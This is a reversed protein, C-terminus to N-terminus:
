LIYVYKAMTNFYSDGGVLAVLSLMNIIDTVVIFAPVALPRIIDIGAPRCNLNVPFGGLYRLLKLLGFLPTSPQLTPLSPQLKPTEKAEGDEVKGMMNLISTHKEILIHINYFPTEQITAEEAPSLPSLPPKVHSGRLLTPRM